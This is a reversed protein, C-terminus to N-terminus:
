LNDKMERLLTVDEAVAASEEKRRRKVVEVSRKASEEMRAPLACRGLGTVVAGFFCKARGPTFVFVYM